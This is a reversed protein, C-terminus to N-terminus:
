AAGSVGSMSPGELILGALILTGDETRDYNSFAHQEQGLLCGLLDELIGFFNWASDM